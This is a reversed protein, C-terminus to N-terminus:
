AQRAVQRVRKSRLAIGPFLQPRLDAGQHKAFLKADAVIGALVHRVDRAPDLHQFLIGALDEPRRGVGLLDRLQDPGEFPHGLLRDLPFRGQWGRVPRVGDGLRGPHRGQDPLGTGCQLWGARLAGIEGHRILLLVIGPLQAGLPVTGFLGPIHRGPDVKFGERGPQRGLTRDVDGHIGVRGPLKGLGDARAAKPEIPRGPHIALAMPQRDLPVLGPLAAAGVLPLEVAARGPHNPVMLGTHAHVPRGATRRRGETGPVPRLHSGLGCLFPMIPRAPTLPLGLAGGLLDIGQPCRGRRGPRMGVQGVLAHLGMPEALVRVPTQHHRNLVGVAADPAKLPDALVADRPKFWVVPNLAAMVDDAVHRPRTRQQDGLAEGGGGRQVLQGAQRRDDGEGGAVQPRHGLGIAPAVRIANEVDRTIVVALVRGSAIPRSRGLELDAPHQRLGGGGRDVAM